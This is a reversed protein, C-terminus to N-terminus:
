VDLGPWRGELAAADVGDVEIVKRRNTAGSVLRVAGNPV